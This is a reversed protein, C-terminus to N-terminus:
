PRISGNRRIYSALGLTNRPPTVSQRTKLFRLLRPNAKSIPLM